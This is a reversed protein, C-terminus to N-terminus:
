KIEECNKRLEPNKIYVCLSEDKKLHAILNFCADKSVFPNTNRISGCLAANKENVARAQWCADSDAKEGCDAASVARQGLFPNQPNEQTPIQLQPLSEGTRPIFGTRYAAWAIILFLIIISGPLILSKTKPHSQFFVKISNQFLM